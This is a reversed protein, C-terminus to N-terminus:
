RIEIEAWIGCGSPVVVPVTQTNILHLRAGMYSINTLLNNMAQDMTGTAGTWIYQSEIRPVLDPGVVWRVRRLYAAMGNPFTFM